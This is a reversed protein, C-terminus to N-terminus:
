RVTLNSGPPVVRHVLSTFRAESRLDDYAPHVALGVVSSERREFGSELCTLASEKDGLGLHTLAFCTAPVPREAALKRLRVLIEGARVRDGTLGYAQGLAGFITPAQGGGLVCCRELMDIARATQGAHLLARGMSGYPKYFSPDKSILQSYRDVAEDYNRRLFSLYARGEMLILSLPDLDIAKELETEAEDFRGLM